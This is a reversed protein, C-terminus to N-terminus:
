EVELLIRAFEVAHVVIGVVGHCHVFQLIFKMEALILDAVLPIELVHILAALYPRVAGAAAPDTPPLISRRLEVQPPRTGEEAEAGAPVRGEKACLKWRRGSLPIRRSLRARGAAM